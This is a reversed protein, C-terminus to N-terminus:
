DHPRGFVSATWGSMSRVRSAWEPPITQWIKRFDYAPSHGNKAVWNERGGYHPSATLPMGCLLAQDFGLDVLAVRLALLGSSGSISMDMGPFALPTKIVDPMVPGHPTEHCYLRLADPYANQRRTSIWNRKQFNAPHISCWADLPGGWLTGIENCAVVGDVVGRYAKIDDFVHEAGGLVLAVTM